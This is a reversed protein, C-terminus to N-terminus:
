LLRTTSMRDRYQIFCSPKGYYKVGRVGDLTGAAQAPRRASVAFQSGNQSGGGHRRAANVAHEHFHVLIRGLRKGVTGVLDGEVQKFAHQFAELGNM